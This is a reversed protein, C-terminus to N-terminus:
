DMCCHKIDLNCELDYYEDWEKDTLEKKRKKQLYWIIKGKQKNKFIRVKMIPKFELLMAV